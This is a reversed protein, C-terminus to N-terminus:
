GYLEHYRRVLRQKVEEQFEEGHDRMMAQDWEASALPHHTLTHNFNVGHYQYHAYPQVYQIYQPTIEVTKSLPGNLYPVYPDCKKALLNHIGLMLEPDSCVQAFRSEFQSLDINVKVTLREPM